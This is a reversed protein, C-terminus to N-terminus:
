TETFTDYSTKFGYVFILNEVLKDFAPYIEKLYLEQKEEDTEANQYKVIAAQTDATFYMNRKQGPKRRIKRVKRPM